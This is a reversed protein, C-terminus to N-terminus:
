EWAKADQALQAAEANLRHLTAITVAEDQAAHMCRDIEEDQAILRVCEDQARECEARRDTILANRKYWWQQTLRTVAAEAKIDALWWRLVTIEKQRRSGGLAAQTTMSLNRKNRQAGLIMRNGIEWYKERVSDPLHYVYQWYRTTMKPPTMGQQVIPTCDAIYKDLTHIIANYNVSGPIFRFPSRVAHVSHWWVHTSLGYRAALTSQIVKEIQTPIVCDESQYTYLLRKVLQPINEHRITQIVRNRSTFEINSRERGSM